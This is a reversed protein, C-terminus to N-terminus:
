ERMKLIAAKTANLYAYGFKLDPELYAGEAWENWANIFILQDDLEGNQVRKRTENGIDELWAQYLAPTSGDLILGQNVKRATNDWMPAIARYTKKMSDLFYKKGNVFEAYDYVYGLFENCVFKKQKQIEKFYKRHPGFFFENIADFGLDLLDKGSFTDYSEGMVAVIYLEFGTKEKVYQRWYTLVESINPINKPKYISLLKKGDVTIYRDDVIYKEIDHIFNKYNEKTRHLRILPEDSTGFWQRMWDENVWCFCFPFNIRSNFFLDVPIDLLRVGNFWYFYFCFGYIGSMQALEVQRYINEILRLDYFGLEGPLRPQYQGIYQPMGKSVNRWETAGKGWWKDNYPTPYFQPLYYAIPKIDEPIRQYPTNDLEEYAESKLQISLIEKIYRELLDNEYVNKSSHKKLHKRLIVYLAEKQESTLFSNSWFLEKCIEKWSRM